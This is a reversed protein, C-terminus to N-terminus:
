TASHQRPDGVAPLEAIVPSRPTTPPETWVTALATMVDELTVGRIARPQARSANPGDADRRLGDGARESARGHVWAACAAAELPDDMQAILTGAIGALLDGSGGTALVPTGAASVLSTGDPAHLVTPLGKLLVVCGLQAALEAGVDFRAALVSDATGGALRTFEVVHPTILAKRGALVAALGPADGAFATLADADLVVPGRWLSLVREIRTRTDRGLGLGPGIVLAHAWDCIADRIEDDSEPWARALAAHASSQVAAVSAPHVIARAMGVGSRLAARAALISAGAMGPAGGMIAIRRRTGKHADAAIPPIRAHVWGHDVLLPAGDRGISHKGLGIDVTVIRGCQARAILLGRKMTGFTITLDAVVANTAAEGTTADVGSPVDLAVVAAGDAALAAIRRIADAVAGRPAGSAGTGLVGDVVVDEAGTPPSPDLVARASAREARADDTKPESVEAVRVRVGAAALAAAVVWADGGNNGPGAYVAVGRRMRHGFARALEAAAAAGARQMLARSPVGADIAARDRLASQPASVVRVTMRSDTPLHGDRASPYYVAAM